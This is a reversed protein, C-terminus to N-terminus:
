GLGRWPRAARAIWTVLDDAKARARRFSLLSSACATVIRGGGAARHEEVRTEAITKAAEPM